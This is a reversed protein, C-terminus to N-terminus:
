KVQEKSAQCDNVVKKKFGREEKARRWSRRKKREPQEQRVGELEKGLAEMHKSPLASLSSDELREARVALFPNSTAM